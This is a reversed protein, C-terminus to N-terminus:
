IRRSGKFVLDQKSCYLVAETVTKLTERNQKAEENYRQIEDRRAFSPFGGSCLLLM